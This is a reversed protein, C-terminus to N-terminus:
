YVTGCLGYVLGFGLFTKLKTTITDLKQGPMYYTIPYKQGPDTCYVQLMMVLIIMSFITNLDSLNLVPRSLGLIPTFQEMITNPSPATFKAM